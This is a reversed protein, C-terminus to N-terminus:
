GCNGCQVKGPRVVEMSQEGCTPCFASWISGFGDSITPRAVFAEEGAARCDCAKPKYEGYDHLGNCEPCGALFGKSVGTKVNVIENRCLGISGCFRCVEERYDIKKAVM